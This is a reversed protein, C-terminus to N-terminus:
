PASQSAAALPRKRRRRRAPATTAYQGYLPGAPAAPAAAPPPPAAVTLQPPPAPLQIGLQQLEWDPHATLAFAWGRHAVVLYLKVRDRLFRFDATERAPPRECALLLTRLEEQDRRTYNQNVLRQEKLYETWAAPLDPAPPEAAPVGLVPAPAAMPGPTDPSRRSQGPTAAQPQRLLAAVRAALLDYDIAPGEAAAAAGAASTGPELTDFALQRAATPRTLSSERRAPTNRRTTPM